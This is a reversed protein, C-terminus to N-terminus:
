NLWHSATQAPRSLSVLTIAEALQHFKVDMENLRQQQKGM